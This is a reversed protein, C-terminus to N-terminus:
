IYEYAGSQGTLMRSCKQIIPSTTKVPRPWTKGAWDGCFTTNIVIKLNKFFHDWNVNEGMFMGNPKGWTTESPSPTGNTIDTPVSSGRPFFWMQVGKSSFDAAFIGGSHENFKSGSSASDAADLVTCGANQDDPGCSDKELNGKMYMSHNSIMLGDTTHLSMRKTPADHVSEVYDIEGSSPWDPGVAWLAQWGGCISPMHFIDAIMLHRGFTKKSELRVSRRGQPSKNSFDVGLYVGGDAPGGSIIGVLSSANAEELGIYKVLGHTPDAEEFFDWKDDDFFGAGEYVEVPKYTYNQGQVGAFVLISALVLTNTTSVM